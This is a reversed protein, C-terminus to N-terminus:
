VTAQAPRQVPPLLRVGAVVERPATKGAQDQEWVEVWDAWRVPVRWFLLRDASLAPLTTPTGAPTRPQLVEEDDLPYVAELDFHGEPWVVLGEDTIDYAAPPPGFCAEIQERILHVGAMKYCGTLANALTQRQEASLASQRGPRAVGALLWGSHEEFVLWLGEESLGPCSLEIRIRNSGLQIAGARIPVGGWGRSQQLVQLLEREVFHRVSEVIHHLAERQKHVAKEGGNRAARREAKRLRAYLKPLTGSHFGPRMLRLMNEGHHGIIVPKLVPSRNAQYLKWNEKLEWVLFGFIGPIGWVISMATANASEASLPLVEMFVAALPSPVSQSTTFALPLILKHSVTVVPFHKIPNIQPEILVYFAFRVFYTIYFWVVSLVAKLVLALRGQGSRFRLWEDVSYLLREVLEVLHKFLDMVARFLGPFLDTRLFYWNRILWDGFAEELNRGARSNFLLLTALFVSGSWGLSSDLSSDTLFCIGAALGACVLPAFLHRFFLEVPRSQLVGRVPPLRLFAAPLDLFLGRLGWGIWGLAKGTARRFRPVHILGLLILGLVGVAAPNLLGLHEAAERGAIEEILYHPGALIVFAGVFPLVFYRTVFRGVPTGFGASSLRQLWRMYVEARHYVGDLAFSFERDIQLLRDRGLWEGLGSLDPLKLNNRSIADRLDGINLFGRASIRDLLEEILKNLAVREAFNQPRMGVKDLSAAIRPRLQDRLRREARHIASQLLRALRRRDPESLRARTLRHEAKRLHKVTLVEHQSPLPRKVPRRGLSLVWEVLDVTYIERENDVCVKQLDYLLRAEVPWLGRAACALLPLLARRWEEAEEASLALAAQLREVLLGLEAEAGARVEASEAPPCAQAARERLIASRAANGVAAKNDARALLKRCAAASFAPATPSRADAGAQDAAPSSGGSTALPNPAGPLRTQQFLSAGDVDEALLAELRQFDDVSPFCHGLQDPAFHRMELYLAAFEEYATRADQPPMLFKEQRLVRCVEDFEAEGVQHIRRRVDAETVAQDAFRRRIALHVRCHFLLRWYKLLTQADSAAALRAPEPRAILLLTPPLEGASGAGLEDRDVIRLLRDRDIVHSKRHPVQLGIGPLQCDFKIVRRLIRAPLLLVAPDAAKLRKELEAVDM